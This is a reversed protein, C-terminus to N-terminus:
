CIQHDGRGLMNSLMELPFVGLRTTGFFMQDVRSQDDFMAIDEM